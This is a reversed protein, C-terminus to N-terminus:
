EAMLFIVLVAAVMVTIIISMPIIAYFLLSLIITIAPGGANALPSGIIAKCYCFAYVLCLAGITNLMHIISALYPGKFGWEIEQSFDTMIIALPILVIGTITMYFFVSEAKMHNNAIKMFYVHLGWPLFVVFTLIIWM